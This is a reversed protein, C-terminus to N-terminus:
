PPKLFGIWSKSEKQDKTKIFKFNYVKRIKSIGSMRM